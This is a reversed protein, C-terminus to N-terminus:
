GVSKTSKIKHSFKNSKILNFHVTSYSVWTKVRPKVSSLVGSNLHSINPVESSGFVIIETKSENLDLINLSMRAKVNSLRLSDLDNKDKLPLYLQTDHFCHYYLGHKEFISALPLRYLFCYLPWFLAKPSRM